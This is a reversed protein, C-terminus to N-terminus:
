AAALLSCFLEQQHTVSRRRGKPLAPRMVRIAKAQREVNTPSSYEEVGPRSAQLDLRLVPLVEAARGRVVGHSYGNLV